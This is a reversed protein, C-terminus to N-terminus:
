YFISNIGFLHKNEHLLLLSMLILMFKYYRMSNVFINICRPWGLFTHFYELFTFSSDYFLM